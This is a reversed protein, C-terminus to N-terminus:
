WGRRTGYAEPFGDPVILERTLERCESSSTNDNSRKLNDSASRRLVAWARVQSRSPDGLFIMYESAIVSSCASRRLESSLFKSFQHRLGLPYRTRQSTLDFSERGIANSCRIPASTKEPRGNEM